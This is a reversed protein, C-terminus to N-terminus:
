ATNTGNKNEELPGRETKGASRPSSCSNDFLCKMKELTLCIDLPDAGQNSM